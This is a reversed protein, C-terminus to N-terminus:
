RNMRWVSLLAEGVQCSPKLAKITTKGTYLKKKPKARTMEIECEMDEIAHPLCFVCVSEREWRGYISNQHVTIMMAVKMELALCACAYRTVDCCCCRFWRSIENVVIFNGQQTGPHNERKQLRGQTWLIAPHKGNDVVKRPCIMQYWALSYMPQTKTLSKPFFKPFICLFKPSNFTFLM